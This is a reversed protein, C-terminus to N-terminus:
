EDDGTWEDAEDAEIGWDPIIEAYEEQAALVRVAAVFRNWARGDDDERQGGHNDLRGVVKLEYRAYGM